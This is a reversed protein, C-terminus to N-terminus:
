LVWGAIDPVSSVGCRGCFVLKNVPYPLELDCDGDIGYEPYACYWCASVVGLRKVHIAEYNSRRENCGWCASHLNDSRDAIHLLHPPFASRPIIHDLVLPEDSRACYRCIGGDRAHIIARKQSDIPVRPERNRVPWRVAPTEEFALIEALSKCELGNPKARSEDHYGTIDAFETIM